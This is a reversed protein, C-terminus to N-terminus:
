KPANFLDMMEPFQSIYKQFGAMDGADYLSQAVGVDFSGIKLSPLLPVGLGPAAFGSAIPQPSLTEMPVGKEANALKAAELKNEKYLAPLKGIQGGLANLGGVGQILANNSASAAEAAAVQAGGAEALDLNAKAKNLRSEETAVMKDIANLDDKMSTRINQQGTNQDMQVRGAVSAAGRESEVGANIAQAGSAILARRELEYAEKNIALDKYFNVDLKKKAATMAIDAEREAKQQLGKQKSAQAFSGATAAATLGLSIATVAGM